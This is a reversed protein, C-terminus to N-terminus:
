RITNGSPEPNVRNQKRKPLFEGPKNRGKEAIERPKEGKTKEKKPSIEGKRGKKGPTIGRALPYRPESEENM